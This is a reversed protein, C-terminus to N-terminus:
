LRVRERFNAALHQLATTVGTASLLEALPVSSGYVDYMIDVAECVAWLSQSSEVCRKLANAFLQMNNCM